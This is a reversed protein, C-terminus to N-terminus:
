GLEWVATVTFGVTQEGPSLPVSEAMAGRPMPMPPPPTSGSAESISVVDGLSLGSLEAYQQARDRADEFARARADRSM